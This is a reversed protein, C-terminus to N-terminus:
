MASGIFCSEDVAGDCDNDIGDGQVETHGPSIQPDTDDCDEGGCVEDEYEDEDLDWCPAETDTHWAPYFYIDVVGSVIHTSSDGYFTASMLISDNWARVYAATGSPCNVADGFEGEGVGGACVFSYELLSDDGGPSRDLANPPDPIGNFGADICQLLDDCQLATNNDSDKVGGSQSKHSGYQFNTARASGALLPLCVCTSLLVILFLGKMFIRRGICFLAMLTMISILCFTAPADSTPVIQVSCPPTCKLDTDTLGDCDNDKGDDCNDMKHSEPYGPYVFPDTDDCDRYPYPCAPSASEGYGDGDSDICIEFSMEETISECNGSGDSLKRGAASDFHESGIADDDWELGANSIEFTDPSIIDFEVRCLHAYGDSAELTLLDITYGQYDFDESMIISKLDVVVLPFPFSIDHIAFYNLADWQLIHIGVHTIDHYFDSFATSCSPDKLETDDYLIRLSHGCIKFDATDGTFEVYIDFFFTTGHITQNKIMWTTPYDGAWCASNTHFFLGLLIWFLLRKIKM